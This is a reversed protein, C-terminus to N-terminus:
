VDEPYPYFYVAQMVVWMVTATNGLAFCLSPQKKNHSTQIGWLKQRAGWSPVACEGSVTIYPQGSDTHLVPVTM